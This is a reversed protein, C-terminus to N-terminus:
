ALPRFKYGLGFVTVIANGASGASRLKRRLNMIHADVTRDMGDWDSGFALRILDDRSFVRGPADRLAHLIRFETRTLSVATGDLTAEHRREDLELGSRALRVGSRRLVARLRAVLERPSFPKTIYDDAGLQLGEVRDPEETRASVILVPTEGAERVQRCIQLGNVGPLMVDVILALPHRAALYELAANGDHVVDAGFGAHQLYLRISAATKRDDEVVLVSPQAPATMDRIGSWDHGKIVASAAPRSSRGGSGYAPNRHAPNRHTSRSACPGPSGCHEEFHVPRGGTLVALTATGGAAVNVEFEISGASQQTIRMPMMAGLESHLSRYRDLEDSLTQQDAPRSYAVLFARMAADGANFASLYNRTVQGAPTNPFIDGAVARTGLVM